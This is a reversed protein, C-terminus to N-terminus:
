YFDGSKKKCFLFKKNVPYTLWLSDTQLSIKMLLNVTARLFVAFLMLMLDCYLQEYFLYENCILM